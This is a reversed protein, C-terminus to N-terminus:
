HERQNEGAARLILELRSAEVKHAFFANVTQRTLVFIERRNVDWDTFDM